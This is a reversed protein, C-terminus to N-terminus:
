SRSSEGLQLSTREGEVGRGFALVPARDPRRPAASKEITHVISERQDDPLDRRLLPAAMMIPSLINNLTTLWAAPSRHRHEGHTRVCCRRSSIKQDTIDFNILLVSRPNGHEDLVLTAHSQVILERGAKSRHRHEGRWERDTLLKKSIAASLSQDVFILEGIECGVAEAATWGYLREAGRNWYHIRRDHLSRVIIADHALDLMAALERLRAEARKRETINTM